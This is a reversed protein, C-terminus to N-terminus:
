LSKRIAKAHRYFSSNFNFDSLFWGKCSKRKASILMKLKDSKCGVHKAAQMIDYFHIPTENPRKITIPLENGKVVYLDGKFRKKGSINQVGLFNACDAQSDFSITEGTKCDFIDIKKCVTASHGGVGGLKINLCRSDNVVDKTVLKKEFEYAENVSPFEKVIERKFSKYGYKIVSDIFASKIKKNKLNVATGDSCIGCGIYGDSQRRESHVGIYYKGTPLCTTKYVFYRM